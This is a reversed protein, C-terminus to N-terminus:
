LSLKAEASCLETEREVPSLRVPATDSALANPASPWLECRCDFEAALM